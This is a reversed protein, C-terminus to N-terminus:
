ITNTFKNIENSVDEIAQPGKPAENKVLDKVYGTTLLFLAHQPNQKFRLKNKSTAELNMQVKENKCISIIAPQDDDFDYYSEQIAGNPQSDSYLMFNLQENFKEQGSEDYNINPNTKLEFVVAPSIKTNPISYIKSIYNIFNLNDGSSKQALEASFNKMPNAKINNSNIKNNIQHDDNLAFGM